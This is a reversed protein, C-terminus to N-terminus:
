LAGCRLAYAVAHTRNRLECRSLVGHIIYKVTRTSYNLKAAVEGTSLGESLLGLVELERVAFGSATWGYPTLTDRRVARLQEVFLRQVTAPFEARGRHAAVIARVIRDYGVEARDLLCVLGSGIARLVQRNQIRTAVLVCALDPPNWGACCGTV